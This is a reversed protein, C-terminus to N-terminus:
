RPDGLPRPSPRPQPPRPLPDPPRDNARPSLVEAHDSPIEVDTLGQWELKMGFEVYSGVLTVANFLGADPTDPRYKMEASIGVHLEWGWTSGSHTPWGGRAERDVEQAHAREMSRIRDVYRLPVDVRLPDGIPAFTADDLVTAVAEYRGPGIEYVESLRVLWRSKGRLERNAAETWKEARKKFNEVQAETQRPLDGLDREYRRQLELFLSAPSALPDRPIEAGPGATGPFDGASVGRARDLDFQLDRIKRRLAANEVEMATMRERM